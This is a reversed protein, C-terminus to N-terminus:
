RDQRSMESGASSQGTHVTARRPKNRGAVSRRPGLRVTSPDTASTSSTAVKPLVACAVQRAACVAGAVRGFLGPVGVQHGGQPLEAYPM